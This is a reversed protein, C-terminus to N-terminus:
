VQFESHYHYKFNSMIQNLDTPFGHNLKFDIITIDNRSKVKVKM